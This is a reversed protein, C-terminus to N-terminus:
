DHARAGFHNRRFVQRMKGPRNRVKDAGVTVAGPIPHKEPALVTRDSHHSKAAMHFLGVGGAFFIQQDCDAALQGGRDFLDAQVFLGAFSVFIEAARLFLQQLALLHRGHALEDSAYGM